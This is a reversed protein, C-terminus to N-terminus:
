KTKNVEWVVEYCTPKLFQIGASESKLIMDHIWLDILSVVAYIDSNISLNTQM